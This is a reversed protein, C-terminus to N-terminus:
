TSRARRRAAPRLGPRLRGPRRGAPHAATAAGLGHIRGAGARAAFYSIHDRMLSRAREPDRARIADLIRRHDGIARDAMDQAPLLAELAEHFLARFSNVAFVLVSNKAAEALALHFAVSSPIFYPDRSARTQRAAEIADEMAQLDAPTAREAAMAAVQPEVLIRAEVLDRLTAQKLRLMNTLSESVPATSPAAVFAGGGAGVKIHVLGQSELIRLADRVTVRSVQFEGALAKESSLSHGPKLAGAFISEKIQRVIGDSARTARIPQFM